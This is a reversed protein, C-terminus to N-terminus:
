YVKQFRRKKEVLSQYEVHSDLQYGLTNERSEHKLHLFVQSYFKAIDSLITDKVNFYKMFDSVTETLPGFDAIAEFVRFDLSKKEKKYKSFSVIQNPKVNNSFVNGDVSSIENSHKKFTFLQNLRDLVNKRKSKIQKYPSIEPKYDSKEDNVSEAPFYFENKNLDKILSLLRAEFYKDNRHKKRNQNKILSPVTKLYDNVKQAASDISGLNTAFIEKPIPVTSEALVLLQLYYIKTYHSFVEFVQLLLKIEYKQQLHFHQLISLPKYKGSMKFKKPSFVNKIKQKFLLENSKSLVHKIENSKEIDMRIKEKNKFLTPVFDCSIVGYEFKYDSSSKQIKLNGKIKELFEKEMRTTPQFKIKSFAFRDNLCHDVSGWIFSRVLKQLDYLPESIESEKAVGGPFRNEFDLSIKYKEFFEDFNYCNFSRGFQNEMKSDNPYHEMLFKLLKYARRRMMVKEYNEANQKLEKHNPSEYLVVNELNTGGHIHLYSKHLSYFLADRVNLQADEKTLLDHEKLTPPWQIAAFSSKQIKKLAEYSESGPRYFESLFLVEYYFIALKDLTAFAFSFLLVLM